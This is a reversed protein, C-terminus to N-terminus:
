NGIRYNQTFIWPLAWDANDRWFLLFGYWPKRIQWVEARYSGDNEILINQDAPNEFEKWVSGNKFLRLILESETKPIRMSWIASDPDAHLHINTYSKGRITMWTRFGDAPALLDNSVFFQGERIAHNIVLTNQYASHTLSPETLLHLVSTKIVSPYSPFQVNWIGLWKKPEIAGSGGILVLPEATPRNIWKIGSEPYTMFKNLLWPLHDSLLFSTVSFFPSFMNRWGSEFNWIEVSQVSSDASTWGMDPHDSYLAVNFGDAFPNERPSYLDFRDGHSVSTFDPVDLSAFWGSDGPLSVQIEPLITLSDYFGGEGRIRSEYSNKETTIVFDYDAVTQKLGPYDIDAGSYTTLVHFIGKYHHFGDLEPASLEATETQYRLSFLFTFVLVALLVLGAVMVSVIFRDTKM